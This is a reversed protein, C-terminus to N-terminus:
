KTVLGFFSLALEAAKILAVWVFALMVFMSGQAMEVVEGWTPRFRYCVPSVGGCVPRVM